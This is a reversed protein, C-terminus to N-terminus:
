AVQDEAVRRIYDDVWEPLIRRYRGDKVSRIQGSLVLFKTKSLGYGLMEAVEATSYWKCAIVTSMATLNEKRQDLSPHKKALL